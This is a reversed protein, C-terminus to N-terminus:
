FSRVVVTFPIACFFLRTQGFEYAEYLSRDPLEVTPFVSIRGRKLLEVAHKEAGTCSLQGLPEGEFVVHRSFLHDQRQLARM